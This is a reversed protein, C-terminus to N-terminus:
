DEVGVVSTFDTELLEYLEHGVFGTLAVCDLVDLSDELVDVFVTFAENGLLIEHLHCLLKVFLDGFGFDFLHDVM